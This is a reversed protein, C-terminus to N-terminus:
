STRQALWELYAASGGEVPLVLFEPVEYPHRECFAVELEDVRESTTKMIGVVESEEQVKGKWTYLSTAGPVLNVCQILGCSLLERTVKKGAELDPFTVLIVRAETM